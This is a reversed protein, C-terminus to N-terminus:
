LARYKTSREAASPMSPTLGLHRLRRLTVSRTADCHHRNYKPSRLVTPSPFLDRLPLTDRRTRSAIKLTRESFRLVPWRPGSACGYFALALKLVYQFISNRLGGSRLSPPGDIRRPRGFPPRALPGPCGRTKSPRLGSRRRPPPTHTPQLGHLAGSRGTPASARASGSAHDGTRGPPAASRPYMVDASIDRAHYM